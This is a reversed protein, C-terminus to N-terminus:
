LKSYLNRKFEILGEVIHDVKLKEDDFNLAQQTQTSASTHAVQGRSTGFSSIDSIFVNDFDDIKYGLPVFIKKINEEKIGHNGKIINRYNSFLQNAKQTIDFNREIKESCIFLSAINYNAVRKENWIQVGDELLKTALGEIYDEIEAHCLLRYARVLDEQQPTINDDNVEINFNVKLAEIRQNLLQYKEDDM